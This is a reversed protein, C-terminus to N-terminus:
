ISPKKKQHRIERYQEVAEESYLHDQRQPEASTEFLAPAENLARLAVIAMTIQRHRLASLYKLPQVSRDGTFLVGHPPSRFSKIVAM